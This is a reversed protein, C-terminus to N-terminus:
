DGSGFICIIICPAMIAAGGTISAKGSTKFNKLQGNSNAPSNIALNFKSSSGSIFFYPNVSNYDTESVVPINATKCTNKGAAAIIDVEQSWVDNSYFGDQKRHSSHLLRELRHM